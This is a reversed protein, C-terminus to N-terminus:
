TGHSMKEHVLLSGMSTGYTCAAHRLHIEAQSGSPILTNYEFDVWGLTGVVEWCTGVVLSGVAWIGKALHRQPWDM